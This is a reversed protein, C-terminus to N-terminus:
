PNHATLETLNQLHIEAGMNYEMNLFSCKSHESCILIKQVLQGFIEQNTFM